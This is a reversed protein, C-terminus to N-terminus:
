CMLKYIFITIELQCLQLKSSVFIFNTVKNWNRVRNSIELYRYSKLVYRTPRFPSIHFVHKEAGWFAFFSFWSFVFGFAYCVKWQCNTRRTHLIICTMVPHVCLLCIKVNIEFYINLFKFNNNVRLRTNLCLSTKELRCTQLLPRPFIHAGYMNGKKVLIGVEVCVFFNLIKKAYYIVRHGVNVNWTEIIDFHSALCM